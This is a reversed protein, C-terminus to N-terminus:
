NLLWVRKRTDYPSKHRSNLNYLTSWCNQFFIIMSTVSIYLITICNSLFYLFFRLHRFMESKNKLKPPGRGSNGVNASKPGQGWNGGHRLFTGWTRWNRSKVGKGAIRVIAYSISKIYWTVNDDDYNKVFRLCINSQISCQVCVYWNVEKLPPSRDFCCNGTAYATCNINSM